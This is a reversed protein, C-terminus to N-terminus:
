YQRYRRQVHRRRVEIARRREEGAVRPLTAGVQQGVDDIRTKAVLIAPMEPPAEGYTWRFTMFGVPAGTTDLWNAIGPDRHAIVYTASGDANWCTQRANLSSQHNAYDLSEGWLNALHFGQYLPPTPVRVDIVLAEDDGLEYVGGAYLNTSQGGGTALTAANPANFDNRPMFRKGDGNMDAHTELVVAYFENWFKMQREVIAGVRRLERAARAADLPAAAGDDLPVIEIELADEREWDHFLERLTVHRAVHTVAEEGGDKRTVTRVRTTALFNGDYGAPRAPALLIEFRGDAGVRLESSDLKGTGVRRGPRLEAISGSDGAYETAAEFIVYQPATRGRASPEGRWHRTDAARGIIRYRRAGDLEANLYLADANDITSKAIPQIARRFHPRAPDVHLAREIAGHVWGLLYRYGEALVRESAPPAHLQPDDIADRARGLAALLDDWALRLERAADTMREDGRRSSARGRGVRLRAYLDALESRIAAGDLGFEELSYAHASARAGSRREQVALARELEASPPFGLRRYVEHVVGTPDRVLDRYDVIAHPTEPHRRLVELPHRYTHVSQEALLRLSHQMRAADWRRRAWGTQMLKLLSPITAGPDRMCVVIRADPFTEILSAVRGSFIPNKSLHIKDRGNLYLQRRVCEAYFRMLRRRKAAPLADVHYFDLEGMYPLLVIWYGSACSYTLLFDDEEPMTLGMPHIHRMPGFTREEWAEVRSAIPGGLRRDLAALARVVKKQLLSPFFLEWYLFVSFRERDESMLRHLLTTGSRAHGVIFVPTRVAVRRLGPFFIGDLFFCLAHVTAVFPVTVLLRVLLKRRTRPHPERWALRIMRRWTAFDFYM